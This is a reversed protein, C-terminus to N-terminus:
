CKGRGDEAPIKRYALVCGELERERLLKEYANSLIYRYASFIYSDRRSAYSIPRSKKAKPQGTKRFPQWRIEYSIFPFFANSAVRLPDRIIALSEEIPLPQDFHPYWKLNDSRPNWTSM